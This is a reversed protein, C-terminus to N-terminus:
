SHVSKVLALLQPHIVKNSAIFYNKSLDWPNGEFDTIHGGAEPCAPHRSRLGMEKAGSFYM